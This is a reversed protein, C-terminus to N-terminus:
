TMVQGGSLHLTQGTVYQGTPGVLYSVAGAVDDVTGLRRLPMQAAVALKTRQPVDAVMDTETMGPAIANATVGYPGAEAAVCRTWAALASKAVVYGAMKPPPSGYASQSTISVIRGFHREIMGPLVAQTCLFSSRLHSALHREMDAWDTEALPKGGIPLGANNVLAQVPGFTQEAEAVLRRVGDPDTVDAQVAVAIGDAAQIAAATEYAGTRDQRYNVVVKLGDAGLRRAVAAGIGRGSGTVVAVTAGANGDTVEPLKDLVHVQAEGDLVVVTHQNTVSVTLVLVRTAPSIHRIRVEVVLQDDVRVPARFRFTESVWLAGPGPLMTGIVTSVYGATLMGHVVRRGMGLDAAYANDTHLPNDDGTLAVFADIDAASVVRELRAVEGVVFDDFDRPPAM